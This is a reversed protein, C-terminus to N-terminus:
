RARRGAKPLSMGSSVERAGVQLVNNQCIRLGTFVTPVPLNHLHYVGHVDVRICDQVMLDGCRCLSARM